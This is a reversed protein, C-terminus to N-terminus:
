HNTPEYELEWEHNPDPVFCSSVDKGKILVIWGGFVSLRLVGDGFREWKALKIKKLM